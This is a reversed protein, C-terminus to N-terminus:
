RRHCRHASPPSAPWRTPWCRPPRRPRSGTSSYRARPGDSTARRERRPRRAVLSPTPFATRIVSLAVGHQVAASAVSSLSEADLGDARVILDAGREAAANAIEGAFASASILAADYQESRAMPLLHRYCALGTANRAQLLQTAGEAGVASPTLAAYRELRSLLRPLTDDWGFVALRDMGRM